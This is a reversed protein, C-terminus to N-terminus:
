VNLFSTTWASLMSVVQRSGCFDIASKLHEVDLGDARATIVGFRDPDIQSLRIGPGDVPMM